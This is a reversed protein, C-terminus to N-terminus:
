TLRKTWEPSRVTVDNYFEIQRGGVRRVIQWGHETAYQEMEDPTMMNLIKLEVPHTIFIQPGQALAGSIKATLAPLNDSKAMGDPPLALTSAKERADV